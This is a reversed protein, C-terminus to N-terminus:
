KITYITLHTKVSEITKEFRGIKSLNVFFVILIGHLDQVNLRICLPIVLIPDQLDSEQLAPFCLSDKIVQM